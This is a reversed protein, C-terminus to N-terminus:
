LSLSNKVKDIKDLADNTLDKPLNLNDVKESNEPSPSSLSDNPKIPDFINSLSENLDTQKEFEIYFLINKEDNMQFFYLILGTKLIVYPISDINGQFAEVQKSFPIVDKIKHKLQSAGWIFPGNKKIFYLLSNPEKSLLLSSFLLRQRELNRRAQTAKFFLSNDKIKDQFHLAPYFILSLPYNNLFTEDINFKEKNPLNISSFKAKATKTTLHTIPVSNKIEQSDIAYSRPLMLEISNNDVIQLNIPSLDPKQSKEILGVVSVEDKHLQNLLFPSMLIVVSLSINLISGIFVRALSKRAFKVRLILDPLTKLPILGFPNFVSLPFLLLSLIERGISKLRKSIGPGKIKVGCIWYSLQAGFLISQITKLLTMMILFFIVTGLIELISANIISLNSPDIDFPLKSSLSTLIGEFKKLPVYNLIGKDLNEKFGLVAKQLKLFHTVKDLHLILFYTLSFQLLVSPFNIIINPKIEKLDQDQNEKIAFKKLKSQKNNTEVKEKNNNKTLSNKIKTLFNKASPNLNKQDADKSEALLDSINQRRTMPTTDKVVELQDEMIKQFSMLVNGCSLTTNEDIVYLKNPKTEKKNIKWHHDQFQASYINETRRFTIPGSELSDIYLQHRSSNGLMLLNIIEETYVLSNNVKVKGILIKTM